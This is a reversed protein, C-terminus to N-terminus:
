RRWGGAYIYRELDAMAEAKTRYHDGVASPFPRETDTLDVFRWLRPGQQQVGLEPFRTATIAPRPNAYTM